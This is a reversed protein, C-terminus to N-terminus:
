PVKPCIAACRPVSQERHSRFVLGPSCAAPLRHRWPERCHRAGEHVGCGDRSGRPDVRGARRAAENGRAPDPTGRTGLAGLAQKARRRCEELLSLRMWLPVAAATLAVGISADGIPSFAWDLAARLNDIRPRYLALWEAMPRAEAEGKAQEFLDRHYEAHRRAVQEYEGSERLKQLAYARITEPLRYRVMVDGLVVMVLSKAVLNAVIEVIDSAIIGGSAAVASAAEETFGGAFVAVRRLVAREPEPLLDYSWDLTARLTWHRPLATRRGRTLLQFRDDLRAAVGRVGFAHVRAAALEIALAIGDLKSCIYAVIPANADSLEFEELSAAAREGFLQVAPFRLAEEASLSLSAPPSALGALRHVHEGEIRLPERSTALIQVKPASRLVAVALVAAADIVHECNDLVLLSRRDRLVDLLRPLPDESHIELGLADALATPVLRPDGFPALDDSRAPDALGRDGESDGLRQDGGISM